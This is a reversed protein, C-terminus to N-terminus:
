WAAVMWAVLNGHDANLQLCGLWHLTIHVFKDLKDLYGFMNTYIALCIQEFKWIYKNLNCYTNTGAVLNGHDANLQLCGLWLLLILVQIDGGVLRTGCDINLQM